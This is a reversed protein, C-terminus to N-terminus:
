LKSNLEIYNIWIILRGEKNQKYKHIKWLYELYKMAIKLYLSSKFKAIIIYLPKVSLEVM